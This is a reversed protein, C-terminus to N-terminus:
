EFSPLTPRQVIISEVRHDKLGAGILHQRWVPVLMQDVYYMGVVGGLQGYANLAQVLRNGSEATNPTNDEMDSLVFVASKAKRSAIAPEGMLYELAHAIGDHVRSGTPDSNKILFDRFVEPSPFDARLEMPTGEWLLSQKTNSIQALIIKNHNGIQEKFYRDLLMRAFEYGKGDEAMLQRFSGSLDLAVLVVYESDENALISESTDLRRACGGIFAVAAVSLSLVGSALYTKHFM